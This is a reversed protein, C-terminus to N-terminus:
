NSILYIFNEKDKKSLMLFSFYYNIKKIFIQKKKSSRSKKGNFIQKYNIATLQYKEIYEEINNEQKEEMKIREEKLDDELTGFGDM